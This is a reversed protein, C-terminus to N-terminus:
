SGSMTAAALPQSIAVSAAASAGDSHIRKM